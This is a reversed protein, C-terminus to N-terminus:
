VGLIAKIDNFTVLLFVGGILVLGAMSIANQITVSVPKGRVQEIVLLIFQGGDVIPLPLFNIVALNVSILAMFFMLWILGRDAVRTGLHAIGVPGKLHEVKVTGAILRDFTAYTTMMVRHTESVGMAVAEVPGSAKLVFQEPEFIGSSVPSLWGLEYLADVDARSLTWEITQVRDGEVPAAPLEVQLTVPVTERKLDHAASTASRLAARMSDFDTVPQGEISIVRMGPLTIVDLAAPAVPGDNNSISSILRPPLALLTSDRATDGVGFGVTGDRRVPLTLNVRQGDRLVVAEVDRGAHARIERIGGVISPYEQSGLRQFVDGDRLGLKYGRDAESVSGVAMVPTLGLLHEVTADRDDAIRVLGIMIEPLPTLQGSATAGKGEFVVHVPAGGSADMAAALDYAGTIDTDDNIQVLTMGSTVGPVGLAAMQEGIIEDAAPDDYITASRAPEVGIALLGTLPSREAIIEFRLPDPVGDRDVTLHIPKARKAMASALYIDNFSNPVRGNVEIVRDGPELGPGLAPANMPVARSAPGAVGGITPPEMKIGVMFVVIFLIAATVVNMAVGASIVIMRKWPPCNQYSDPADSIATPDLDDQGLMKVYGGLPLTNLRYETPSIDPKVGPQRMLKLYEPESSGRRFGLGKRYTVIANGFGLAFALVRIGAWRAAIFHGLEHVFIILSFGLVVLLLDFGSGLLGLFNTM